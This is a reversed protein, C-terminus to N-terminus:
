GAVAEAPDVEDIEFPGAFDYVSLVWRKGQTTTWAIAPLGWRAQCWRGICRLEAELTERDPFEVELVEESKLRAKLLYRM